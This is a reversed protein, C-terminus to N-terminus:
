PKWGSMWTAVRRPDLTLGDDTATVGPFRQEYSANLQEAEHELAALWEEDTVVGKELLLAAFATAEVRLLITLERHDRVADGEPDGKARTGLQWGAFLTRWKTVRNLARMTREAQSSM